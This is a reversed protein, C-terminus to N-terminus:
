QGDGMLPVHISYDYKLDRISIIICSDVDLAFGIGTSIVVNNGIIDVQCNIVNIAKAEIIQFQKKSISFLDISFSKSDNLCLSAPFAAIDNVIEFTANVPLIITKTSNEKRLVVSIPITHVGVSLEKQSVIQIALINTPKVKHIVSVLDSFCVIKELILGNGIKYNFQKSEIQPLLRSHRGCYLNSPGALSPLVKVIFFWKTEERQKDKNIAIMPSYYFQVIQEASRDTNKLTAPLQLLGKVIVSQNAMLTINVPLIISCDCSTKWETIEIPQDTVNHVTFTHELTDTHYVEGLDLDSALVMLGNRVIENPNPSKRFLGAAYATGLAALTGVVLSAALTRRTLKPLRPFHAM